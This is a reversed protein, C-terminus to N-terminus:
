PWIVASRLKTAIVRYARNEWDQHVIAAAFPYAVLDALELGGVVKSKAVFEVREPFM